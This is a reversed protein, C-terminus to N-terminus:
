NAGCCRKYKKGSGCPCPENRGVKPGRIQEDEDRARFLAIESLIPLVQPIFEACERRVDDDVDPDPDDEFKDILMAFPEILFVGHEDDALDEWGEPALSMAAWFGKVWLDVKELDVNGNTDMYMPRWAEGKSEINHVTANYFGTVSDLVAQAHQDDDFVPEDEGWLVDLCLSPPILDPSVIVGAFFGELELPRM